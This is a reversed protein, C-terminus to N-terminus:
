STGFSRLWKQLFHRGVMLRREAKDASWGLQRAIDTASLGGVLWRTTAEWVEPNLKSKSEILLDDIDQETFVPRQTANPEIAAAGQDMLHDLSQPRRARARKADSAANRAATNVFGEVSAIEIHRSRLARILNEMAAATVDEIEASDFGHLHAAAVVRALKWLRKLHSDELDELRRLM